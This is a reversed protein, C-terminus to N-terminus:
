FLRFKKKLMQGLGNKRSAVLARLLALWGPLLLQSAWVARMDIKQGLPLTPQTQITICTSVLQYYNISIDLLSKSISPPLLEYGLLRFIYQFSGHFRFLCRWPFVMLCLIMTIKALMDFNQM